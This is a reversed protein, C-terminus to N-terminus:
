PAPSPPPLRRAALVYALVAKEDAADIKSKHAMDPMIDNVLDDEDCNAPNEYAHCKAYKQQHVVYGRELLAVPSRSIRLLEGSVPPAQYFPGCSTVLPVVAVGALIHRRALMRFIRPFTTIM